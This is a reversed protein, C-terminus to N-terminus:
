RTPFAGGTRAIEGVPDLGQVEPLGDATVARCYLWWVVGGFVGMPVGVAIFVTVTLFAEPEFLPNWRWKV